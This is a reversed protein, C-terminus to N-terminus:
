TQYILFFSHAAPRENYKDNYLPSFYHYHPLKGNGIMEAYSTGNKPHKGAYLGPIGRSDATNAIIICADNEYLTLYSQKKLVGEEADERTVPTPIVRKPHENVIGVVPYYIRPNDPNRQLEAIVEAEILSKVSSYDYQIGKDELLVSNPYTLSGDDITGGVVIGGAVISGAAVAGLGLAALDSATLGAANGVLAAACSNHVLVGTTGVFYNHNDAVEFNYVTKEEDLIRLRVNEIIATNGSSLLVLDGKRLDGAKKWGNSLTYFPHSPTAEILENNATIQVLSSTKNVSVGAVTKTEITKTSENFSLVNDGAVINQIPKTFGSAMQVPTNAPFCFALTPAGMLSGASQIVSSTIATFEFGTAFGDAFGEWSNTQAGKIAGGVVGGIASVGALTAATAAFCALGAGATVTTVVAAVLICGVGIAIKKFFNGWNFEETPQNYYEEPLQSNHYIQGDYMTFSWDDGFEDYMQQATRGGLLLYPVQKSYLANIYEESIYYIQIEKVTYAEGQNSNIESEIQTRIANYDIEDTLNKVRVLDTNETTAGFFLVYCENDYDYLNGLSDDYDNTHSATYRIIGPNEEDSYYKVYYGDKIFHGKLALTGCDPIFFDEGDYNYSSMNNISQLFQESIFDKETSEDNVVQYVQANWLDYEGNSSQAKAYIDTRGIVENTDSNFRLSAKIPTLSNKVLIESAQDIVFSKIEAQTSLQQQITPCINESVNNRVTVKNPNIYFASPLPSGSIIEAYQANYITTAGIYYQQTSFDFYWNDKARFAFSNIFALDSSTGSVTTEGISNYTYCLVSNGNADLIELVNGSTDYLYYYPLGNYVFGLRNMNADFIYDVSYESNDCIVNESVIVDNIYSYSYTKENITKQTIFDNGLFSYERIYSIPSNVSAPTDTYETTGMGFFNGNICLYQKKAYPTGNESLLIETAYNTSNNLTKALKNDTYFYSEVVTGNVAKSLLNGADDYTFTYQNGGTHSVIIKDSAYEYSIRNSSFLASYINNNFYTIEALNKEDLMTSSYTYSDNIKGLDFTFDSYSFISGNYNSYEVGFSSDASFVSFCPATTYYPTTSTNQPTEFDVSVSNDSNTEAIAYNQSQEVIEHICAAVGCPLIIAFVLLTVIATVIQKPLFLNHNM